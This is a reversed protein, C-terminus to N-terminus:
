GMCFAAIIRAIKQESNPTFCDHGHIFGVLGLLDFFRPIFGPFIFAIKGWLTAVFAVADHNWWWIDGAGQVHAVGELVRNHIGKNAIVAHLAFVGKPLRAGVM